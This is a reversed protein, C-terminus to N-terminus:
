NAAPNFTIMEGNPKVISIQDLKFDNDFEALEILEEAVDEASKYIDLWIMLFDGHGFSSTIKNVFIGDYETVYSGIFRGAMEGEPVNVKIQM